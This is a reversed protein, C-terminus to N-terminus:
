AGIEADRTARNKYDDRSTVLTVFADKNSPIPDTFSEDDILKSTWETRFRKWCNNKKGTVAGQVWEDIDLLDNKMLLQDTDNITVTVKLNAM